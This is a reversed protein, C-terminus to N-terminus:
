FQYFRWRGSLEYVNRKRAKAKGCSNPPVHTKARHGEQNKGTKSPCKM